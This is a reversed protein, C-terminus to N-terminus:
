HESSVWIRLPCFACRNWNCTM